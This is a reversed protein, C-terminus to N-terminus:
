LMVNHKLYVKGHYPHCNNIPRYMPTAAVMVEGGVERRARHYRATGVELMTRLLDLCLKIANKTVEPPLTVLGDVVYQAQDVDVDVGDNRVDHERALHEEQNKVGKIPSSSLRKSGLTSKM